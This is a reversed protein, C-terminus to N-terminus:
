ILHFFFKGIRSEFGLGKFRIKLGNPHIADLQQDENILQVLQATQLGALPRSTNNFQWQTPILSKFYGM